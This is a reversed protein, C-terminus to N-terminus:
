APVAAVQLDRPPTWRTVPVGAAVFAKHCVDLKETAMRLEAEDYEKGTRIAAILADWRTRAEVWSEHAKYFAAFEADTAM